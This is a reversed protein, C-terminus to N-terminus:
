HSRLWGVREGERQLRNLRYVRGSIRYSPTTGQLPEFVLKFKDGAKAAFMPSRPGDMLFINRTEKRLMRLGQGCLVVFAVIGCTGSILDFITM